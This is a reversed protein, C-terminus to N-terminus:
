KNKSKNIMAIRIPAFHYRMTTKIQTERIILSIPGRKMHKNAM